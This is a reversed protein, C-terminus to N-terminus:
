RQHAPPRRPWEDTVLFPRSADDGDELTVDFVACHLSVLYVRGQASTTAVDISATTIPGSRPPHADLVVGLLTRSM